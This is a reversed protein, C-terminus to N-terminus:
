HHYLNASFNVPCINSTRTTIMMSIISQYLTISEKRIKHCSTSQSPEYRWTSSGRWLHHSSALHSSVVIKPTLRHSRLRQLLHAGRKWGIQRSREHNILYHQFLLLFSALLFTITLITLVQYFNNM